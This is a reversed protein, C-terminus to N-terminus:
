QDVEPKAAGAAPAPETGAAGATAGSGGSRARAICERMRKYHQEVEDREDRTGRQNALDRFEEDVKDACAADACACARDAMLKMKAVTRNACGGPALLLLCGLISRVVRM